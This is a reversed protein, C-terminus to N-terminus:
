VLEAGVQGGHVVAVVVVLGQGVDVCHNVMGLHLVILDIFINSCCYKTYNLGVDSNVVSLGKYTDMGGVVVRVLHVVLYIIISIVVAVVFCCCCRVDVM